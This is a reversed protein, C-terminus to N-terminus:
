GGRRRGRRDLRAARLMADRVEALPQAVHATAISTASRSLAGIDEASLSLATWVIVPTDAWRPDSRLEHLVQFGDVGPMMLDLVVAAPQLRPLAQLAEAGGPLSVAEIGNSALAACMLERSAPEDDVVLVPRGPGFRARLPVLARALAARRLPKALIDAVPFAVGAGSAPTLALAKVAAHMSPGGNRLQALMALGPADPLGLDIALETYRRVRALRLVEAATAAADAAVGAQSLERAVGDRLPHDRLAVLQQHAPRPADAETAQPQRPLVAYFRSGQGPESYVGVRGGQAEVLRRTLALGLGTGQHHKTLGDDLQQFEVFLQGLRDAPIGIGSDEVELRWLRPGEGLMRLEVRGGVPTFKIANSLYNLLVQKLRAPDLVLGHLEPAISSSLQQGRQGALVTVTAMVDDVVQALDVPEPHFDMKGAEIKSLDLVDNIMNLLHRGSSAIHKLWERQRAADVPPDAMTLLDSFGIVANLPTRLEHSMNALFLSKLRSSEQVRRNEAALWVSQQRAQEATRMATVDAVIGVLRAAGADDRTVRADLRLWHVSADPWTVRFEAHWPQQGEPLTDLGAQVMARDDIHVTALLRERDWPTGPDALGFCQDYRRSRHILGTEVEMEWDGIAASELAFRLRAESHRLAAEIQRQHTLDRASKIGGIIRGAADRLPSVQASVEVRRGDKAIRVTRFPPVPQGLAINALIRMEEAEREPPILMQVPQGVAEDATYGFMQEAAANWNTIRGDLTKVVIADASSEVVAALRRVEAEAETLRGVDRFVLAIGRTRGDAHHTPEVHLEVPHQDGDRSVCVAHRPFAADAQGDRVLDVPNLQLLAAPADARVFVERLPRGVAQAAPWGTIREAVANIRKVRGESDTTLYGADIASLTAALGQETELLHDEASHRRDMERRLAENAAQMEGVSPVALLQPMLRWAVIATLVSACATFLKGATQVAYDPRWITWVDLVHTVGCAFIFIAFLTALSGLNVQPRQRAYSAIVLPLSFYAVATALDSGVMTWLLGPSWQFCYGHPLFGARAVIGTLEDM